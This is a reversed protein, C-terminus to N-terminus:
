REDGITERYRQWQADILGKAEPPSLPAGPPMTRLTQTYYAITAL